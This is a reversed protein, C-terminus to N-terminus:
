SCYCPELTIITAFFPRPLPLPSTNSNVLQNGRGVLGGGGGRGTGRRKRGYRNNEGGAERVKRGWSGEDGKERCGGVCM